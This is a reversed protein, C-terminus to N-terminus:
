PTTQIKCAGSTTGTTIRTGVGVPFRPAFPDHTAHNFEQAASTANAACYDAPMALASEATSIGLATVALLASVRSKHIM